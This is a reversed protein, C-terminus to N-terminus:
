HQTGRRYREGSKHARGDTLVFLTVEPSAGFRVPVNSMGIGRNVYLLAGNSDYWGRRYSGRAGDAWPLHPIRVQGGHTHGALVLPFWGAPVFDVVDPVHTLLVLLQTDRPIGTIAALFDTHATAYDDVGVIMRREGRWQLWAHANNLVTVGQARLGEVLATTDASSRAHDHNGLVAFTAAQRALPAFLDGRARWRGRDVFDGTLFVADPALSVACAVARRTLARSQGWMGEQFDSLQVLRMGEWAPPLAPIAVSWREVRLRRPEILSAYAALMGLSVATALTAALRPRRTSKLRM